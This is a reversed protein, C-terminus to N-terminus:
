FASLVTQLVDNATSVVKMNAEYGNMYLLLNAAEEDSSVASVRDRAVQADWLTVEASNLSADATATALGIGGLMNAFGAELTATKGDITFDMSRIDNLGKLIDGNGPEGDGSFALEHEQIDTIALTGAPNLPDYTFLDKTPSAGSLDFGASLVLNVEDALSKAMDNYSNLSPVHYDRRLEQMAGISGSVDNKIPVTRGNFELELGLLGDEASKLTAVQSGSILPQGNALSVEVVGSDKALVKVGVMSSLDALMIDMQDLLASTDQGMSHAREITENLEAVSQLTANTSTLSASFAHDQADMQQNLQGVASNFRKALSNANNIFQNRYIVSEPESTAEGIASFFENYGPTLSLGESSLTNELLSLGSRLEQQFSYEEGANRLALVTSSDYVRSPNSAAVGMPQGNALVASHDVKLRSFGQTNLNAINHATVNLSARNANAGTLGIYLMSM